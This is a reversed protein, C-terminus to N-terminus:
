TEDGSPLQGLRQPNKVHGQFIQQLHFIGKKTPHHRIQVNVLGHNLIIRRAVVNEQIKNVAGVLKASGYTNQSPFWVMATSQTFSLIAFM